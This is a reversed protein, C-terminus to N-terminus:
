RRPCLSPELEPALCEATPLRMPQRRFSDSLLELLTSLEQNLTSQQGLCRMPNDMPLNDVSLSPCFPHSRKGYFRQKEDWVESEIDVIADLGM